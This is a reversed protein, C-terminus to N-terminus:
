RIDLYYDLMYQSVQGYSALGDEQGHRELNTEVVVDMTSAMDPKLHVDWFDTVANLDRKVLKHCTTMIASASDQDIKYLENSLYQIANFYGSYNMYPDISGLCAIFAMYNAENEKAVGRQHAIEHTVTFPVDASVLLGNVLPEGTFMSYVGTYGMNAQVESLILRKPPGFVGTMYRYENPLYYYSLESMEIIETYTPTTVVQVEMLQAIDNAQEIYYELAEELDKQTTSAMREEDIVKIPERYFNVGYFAFFLFYLISLSVGLFRFLNHVDNSRKRKNRLDGIWQVMMTMVIILYVFLLVEGMSVPIAGYFSSVGQMLRIFITRSYNYEVFSPNAKALWRLIETIPIILLSLLWKNNRLMSACGIRHLTSIRWNIPRISLM